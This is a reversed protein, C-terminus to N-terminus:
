NYIVLRRSSFIVRKRTLIIWFRSFEILKFKSPLNGKIRTHNWFNWIRWAMSGSFVTKTVVIIYKVKKLRTTLTRSMSVYYRPNSDKNTVSVKYKSLWQIVYSLLWCIAHQRFVRWHTVNRLQNQLMYHKRIIRFQSINKKNIINQPTM